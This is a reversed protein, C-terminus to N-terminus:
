QTGKRLNQEVSVICRNYGDTGPQYGRAACFQPAQPCGQPTCGNPDAAVPASNDSSDDFPDLDVDMCGGLLAALGLSLAVIRLKM